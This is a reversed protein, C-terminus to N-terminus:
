QLHLYLSYTDWVDYNQSNCIIGLNDLSSKSIRGIYTQRGHIGRKRTENEITLYGLDDMYIDGKAIKTFSTHNLPVHEIITDIGDCPTTSMLNDALSMDLKLDNNLLIYKLYRASANDALDVSMTLGDFIMQINRREIDPLLLPEEESLAAQTGTFVTQWEGWKEKDYETSLSIDITIKREEYSDNVPVVVPILGSEVIPQTLSSELFPNEAYAYVTGDILARYRFLQYAEGPQFRTVALTYYIPIDIVTGEQPIKDEHKIEGIHCDYELPTCSVMILTITFALSIIIKKM